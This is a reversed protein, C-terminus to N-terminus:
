LSSNLFADFIIRLNSSVSLISHDSKTRNKETKQLSRYQRM